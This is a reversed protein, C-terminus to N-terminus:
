FVGWERGSKMKFAGDVAESKKRFSGVKKAKHVSLEFHRPKIARFMLILNDYSAPGDSGPIPLVLKDMKNDSYTLSYDKMAGGNYTIYVDGIPIKKSM